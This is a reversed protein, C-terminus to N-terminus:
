QGAAAGPARGAAFLDSLVLMARRARLREARGEEAGAEARLRGDHMLQALNYRGDLADGLGDVACRLRVGSARDTSDPSGADLVGSQSVVLLRHRGDPAIMVLELPLLKADDARLAKARLGADLVGTLRQLVAEVTASSTGDPPRLGVLKGLDGTWAAELSPYDLEALLQDIREVQQPALMRPLLSGRGISSRSITTTFDIKYDGPGTAHESELGKRLVSKVTRADHRVGLFEFLGQLTVFPDGCLLEYYIRAHAQECTREFEVMKSARDIWYSGLGAVFNGPATGLFPAFGYANFGWRSAEIGSAIMDLPYRHLFVFSADPYCRALLALQDVSTLSKDCFVNVRDDTVMQRVMEDLAKRARRCAQDSPAAQPDEADALDGRAEEVRMWMSVTHQLYASLNHEAPASIEPHSDLLYRLLTSGSRAASIVFVMRLRRRSARGGPQSSRLRGATVTRPPRGEPRRGELDPSDRRPEPWEETQPAAALLGDGGTVDSM